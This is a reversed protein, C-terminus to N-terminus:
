VIAGIADPHGDVAELRVKVSRNGSGAGADNRYLMHCDRQIANVFLDLDGDDDFDAPVTARCDGESDAGSLDSIDLYSGGAGGGGGLFVRNREFGSFSLGEQFILGMHTERYRDSGARESEIRARASDTRTEDERADGLTSAM